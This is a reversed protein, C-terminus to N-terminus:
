QHYEDEAWRAPNEDIYQWTRQYETEDRVIRDHFSRQFISFGIQKTIQRKLQQIVTSIAARANTPAIILRGHNLSLIMHIHNPMIVYKDVMVDAYYAPIERIAVDAINGYESLAVSCCPRNIIAGVNTTVKGLMEHGDKVCFTVFYWGARSYDHGDLRINKRAPLEKL